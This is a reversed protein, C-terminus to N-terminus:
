RLVKRLLLDIMINIANWASQGKRRSYETYLVTVPVETWRLGLRATEDIIESCFAYGPQRLRIKELATRSLARFGNHTDSFRLGSTLAGFATALRLLRRRGAPIEAIDEPRLFRSGFVIDARGEQIPRIMEPIQRWDHQGDADMTVVIEAGAGDLRLAGGSEFARRAWELGTETAAGAGLNVAHRLHIVPLARLVADTGDTSGDDAVVVTYGASILPAVTEAIKSAENFCPIVIVTRM